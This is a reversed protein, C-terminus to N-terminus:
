WRKGLALGVFFAGMFPYAKQDAMIILNKSYISLQGGITVTQIFTKGKSPEIAFAGEIYAGPVYDMNGLGKGWKSAGLVRDKNLFVDKNGESFREEQLWAKQPSVTFDTYLLRLYYPKLLALSLGGGYRFSVSINGELIGPLLLQERGYGLQM